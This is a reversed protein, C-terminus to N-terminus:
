KVKMTFESPYQEAVSELGLEMADLLLGAERGPLTDRPSEMTFSIYGGDEENHNCSFNADTLAEISNVTNIVLMSVAACVYSDGHHHVDFAIVRKAADRSLRATIM